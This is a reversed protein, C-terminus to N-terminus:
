SRARFYVWIMSIWIADSVALHVLQMWTPALLVLNLIGIAIQLVVLFVSRQLSKHLLPAARAAFHGGVVMWIATAAAVFPHASRLRVFLHSQPDLDARLGSGLSDSPFLTDGLAAIAGTVGVSLLLGLTLWLGRRVRVPAALPASLSPYAAFLTLSQMALLLFTNILHASMWAARATSRNHAVMEFLVLGAGIAAETLMFFMSWGAFRRVAHRRPLRIIALCLTALTLLLAVGSTLRHTYEVLTAIGPDRPVIEGNCMPWHAGCGAGSGTARVFAGWLIVALTFLLSTLALRAVPGVDPVGPIPKTALAASTQTM